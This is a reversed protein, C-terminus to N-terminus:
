RIFLEELSAHSPWSGRVVWSGSSKTLIWKRHIKWTLSVRHAVRNAKGLWLVLTFCACWLSQGTLFRPGQKEARNQSAHWQSLWVLRHGSLWQLSLECCWHLCSDFLVPFHDKTPWCYITIHMLWKYGLIFISHAWLRLEFFCCM